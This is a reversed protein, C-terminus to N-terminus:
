VNTFMEEIVSNSDNVVGGEQGHIKRFAQLPFAWGHLKMGGVGLPNDVSQNPGAIFGDLSMSINFRLRSM